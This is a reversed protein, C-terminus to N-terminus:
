HKIILKVRRWRCRLYISCYRILDYWTQLHKLNNKKLWNQVDTTKWKEINLAPVPDQAAAIPATTAIPVAAAAPKQAEKEKGEAAAALILWGFFEKL